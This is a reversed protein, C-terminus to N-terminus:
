RARRHVHMQLRAIMRDIEAQTLQIVPYRRVDYTRSQQRIRELELRAVRGAQEWQDTCEM